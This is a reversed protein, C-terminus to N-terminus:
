RRDQGHTNGSPDAPTRPEIPFLWELAGSFRLRWYLENHQNTAAESWKSTPVDVAKLQDPTRPTSDTIRLLTKGDVWGIRRLQTVIRDTHRCGDDDGSYDVVGSDIYIRFPLPSGQYPTIVERAFAQREVQFAGSMCGVQGFVNPFEWALSLSCLGGLSSGLVATNAPNTLTRYHADIWPKLEEVLFRSYRRYPDSDPIGGDKRAVLGRYEMYRARTNDIGVLIVERCRNSAALSTATIDTQWSGWGFCSHPGASSFVNQGDQLYLVPYRVDSRQSYSAPLAVRVCRSTGLIGSIFQTENLRTDAAM